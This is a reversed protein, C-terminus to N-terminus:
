KSICFTRVFPSCLRALPHPDRFAMVPGEGHRRFKQSRRCGRGSSPFLAMKELPHGIQSGIRHPPQVELGFDAAASIEKLINADIGMELCAEPERILSVEVLNFVRILAFWIGDIVESLFHLMVLWANVRRINEDALTHLSSSLLVKGSTSHLAMTDIQCESVGVVCTYRIQSSSPRGTKM